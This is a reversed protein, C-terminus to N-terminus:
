STYAPHNWELFIQCFRRFFHTAWFPQKALSSSCSLIHVDSAVPRYFKHMIGGSYVAGGTLRETISKFSERLACEYDVACTPKIGHLNTTNQLINFKQCPFRLFSRAARFQPTFSSGPIEGSLFFILDWTFHNINGMVRSKSSRERM